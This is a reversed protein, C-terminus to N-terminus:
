PATGEEPHRLRGKLEAELRRVAHTSRHHDPLRDIAALADSFAARAESTRGAALLVRGREATWAEKRPTVALLADVRRLAEDFRGADRAIEAARSQLVALPGLREMGADLAALAADTHDAGRATQLEALRLFDGPDLPDALEVVRQQAAVAGAVDGLTVLASALARHADASQAHRLLTRAEEAAVAADGRGLAVRALCLHVEHLDPKLRLAERCDQEAASWDEAIRLLEARQLLLTADHDGTLEATVRDIQSSVPPHAHASPLPLVLLVSICAARSLRRLFVIM